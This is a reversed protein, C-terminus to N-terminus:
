RQGLLPFRPCNGGADRLLLLRGTEATGAALQLVERQCGKAAIAAEERGHGVCVHAHVGQQCGQYEANCTPTKQPSNRVGM